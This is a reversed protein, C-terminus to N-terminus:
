KIGITDFGSLIMDQAAGVRMLHGSLGQVIDCDLRAKKAAVKL